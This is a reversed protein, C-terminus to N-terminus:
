TLCVVKSKVTTHTGKSDRKQHTAPIFATRVQELTIWRTSVKGPLGCSHAFVVDIALSEKLLSVIFIQLKIISDVSSHREHNYRM